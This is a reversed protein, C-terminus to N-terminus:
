LRQRRLRLANSIVSISSLSMAIAAIMPSLVLGFAPYLAGAAIPVGVANYAFAFFLNQRINAMTADALRKARVIGGLDGKVLPLGASEIAVDAGTGMAIGVDAAALAPADNVGDGAMAIRRGQSQLQSVIGAKDAPSVDARIDDIGLRAAVAKATRQNDGIAMVVTLGEAQLAKIANSTTTKIPDAVAILGALQNDVVVFMVTEGQDRHTDAATASQASSLGLSGLLKSNGLAVDHGDITGTVGEGVIAQFNTASSVTLNRDAAANVIASALPHESNRELSAALRLLSLENHNAEPLIATVAPRGETLTGTNDVVLTDVGAFRELAEADKILVGATAGRGTAVMISM